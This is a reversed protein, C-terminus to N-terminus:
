DNKDEVIKWCYDLYSEFAKRLEDKGVATVGLETQLSLITTLAITERTSLLDVVVLHSLNMGNNSYVTDTRVSSGGIPPQAKPQVSNVKKYYANKLITRQEDTLRLRCSYLISLKEAPKRTAFALSKIM